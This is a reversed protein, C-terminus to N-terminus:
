LGAIREKIAQVRLRTGPLMPQKDVAAMLRAAEDKRGLRALCEARLAVLAPPLEKYAELMADLITAVRETEGRRVLDDLAREQSGPPLGPKGALAALLPLAAADGAQLRAVLDLVEARMEWRNLELAKRAVRSADQPRGAALLCEVLELRPRLLNGHRAIVQELPGIAEQAKGRQRACRALWTAGRPDEALARVDAAAEEWRGLEGLLAARLLGHRPERRMLDAMGQLGLEVEGQSWAKVAADIRRAEEQSSAHFV